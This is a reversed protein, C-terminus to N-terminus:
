HKSKKRKEWDEWIKRATVAGLATARAIDLDIDLAKQHDIDAYTAVTESIIARMFGAVDEPDGNANVFNKPVVEGLMAAIREDVPTAVQPKRPKRISKPRM